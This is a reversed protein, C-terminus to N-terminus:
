PVRPHMFVQVAAPYLRALVAELRNDTRVVERTLYDLLGVKARLQRTM